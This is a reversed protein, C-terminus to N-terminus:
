IRVVARTLGEDMTTLRDSRRGVAEATRHHAEIEREM